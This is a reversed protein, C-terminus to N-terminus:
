LAASTYSHCLNKIATRICKRTDADEARYENNCSKHGHGTHKDARGVKRFRSHYPFLGYRKAM